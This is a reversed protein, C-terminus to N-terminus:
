QCLRHPFHERLVSNVEGESVERGLERRVFPLIQLPGLSEYRRAVKLVAETVDHTAPTFTLKEMCPDIDSTSANGDEPVM